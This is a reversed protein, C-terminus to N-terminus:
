LRSESGSPSARLETLIGVAMFGFLNALGYVTWFVNVWVDPPSASHFRLGVIVSLVMVVAFIAHPLLPVYDRNSARQKATVDFSQFEQVLVRQFARVLVPFCGFSMMNVRWLTTWHPMHWSAALVGVIWYVIFTGLYEWNESRIASEGTLLFVIPTLVFILDRLGGLYHTGSLFYQFRQGWDLGGTGPVFVERWYEATVLLCGRAWRSQQRLYSGIDVPGLGSSLRDGLYVSRWGRMHMPLSVAFDETPNDLPFGGVEDLAQTRIVFNTGCLFLGNYAAKHPCLNDYFLLMQQNAYQAVPNDLNRYYQGTQVWGVHPDAFHPLMALLFDEHPVQDADFVVMLAGGHIGLQERAHEINGAKAGGPDTRTLCTIDFRSALREASRWDKYGAVYGDNCIVVQVNSVPSCLLLKDRAAVAGRVTQELVALPENATPILVFVDVPPINDFPLRAPFKRPLQTLQFGIMHVLGLLEALLLPFAVWAASWNVVGFRLQLYQWTALLLVTLWLMQQLNRRVLRLWATILLVMTMLVAFLLEGNMVIIALLSLGSVTLALGRGWATSMPM